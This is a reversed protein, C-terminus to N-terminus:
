RLADAVPLEPKTGQSGLVLSGELPLVPIVSRLSKLPIWL